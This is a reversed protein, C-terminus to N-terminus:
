PRSEGGCRTQVDGKSHPGGNAGARLPLGQRRLSEPLRLSTKWRPRRKQVVRAMNARVRESTRKSEAGAIGAKILLLLEDRFDEDTAEIAVGREELEWYRRLIEKPNRGFRDLYQVVIVDANDAKVYEVMRNYEKRDDRRGSVVDVFTAVPTYNRLRCYEYFRAEQTELSSHREGIQGTSSVRLYGVARKTALTTTM